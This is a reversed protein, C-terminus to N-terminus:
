IQVTDKWRYCLLSGALDKVSQGEGGGTGKEEVDERAIPDVEVSVEQKLARWVGRIVCRMRLAFAVDKRANRPADDVRRGRAKVTVGECPPEHPGDQVECLSVKAFWM